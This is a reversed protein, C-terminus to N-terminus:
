RGSERSHEHHKQERLRGRSRLGHRGRGLRRGGRILTPCCRARRVALRIQLSYPVVSRHSREFPGLTESGFLKIGILLKGFQGRTDPLAIHALFGFEPCGSLVRE